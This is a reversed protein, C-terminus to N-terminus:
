DTEDEPDDSAFQLCVHVAVPHGEYKGEFSIMTQGHSESGFLVSDVEDLKKQAELVDMGLVTPFVLEGDNPGAEQIEVPEVYLTIVHMGSENKDPHEYVWGISTTAQFQITLAMAEGLTQMWDPIQREEAM